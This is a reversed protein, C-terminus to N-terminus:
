ERHGGDGTNGFRLKRCVCTNYIKPLKGKSYRKAGGVIISNGDADFRKLAEGTAVNGVANVARLISVEPELM